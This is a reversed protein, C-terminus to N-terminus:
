IKEKIIKYIQPASIMELCQSYEENTRKRACKVNGNRWCPICPLSAKIISVLEGYGKCRARSDIPGFLALTKKKLAVAVHLPGTDVTFVGDCANIFAANERFSRLGVNIVNSFEKESSLIINYDNYLLDILQLYNETPWNRYKEASELVLYITKKKKNIKDSLFDKATQLEEKKPYYKPLMDSIFNRAGLAEAYIEVRNKEVLKGMRLRSTEYKSCPNSIDFVKSYQTYDVKSNVDLVKDVSPCTEVIEMLSAETAVHLEKNPFKSRLAEIGNLAMLIDGIGRETRKILIPKNTTKNVTYNKAPLKPKSLKEMSANYVMEASIKELCALKGNSNRNCESPSYWCAFCPLNLCIAEANQYHNIRSEPPIPGWISIIKKNLAGALHLMSSDPCIVLDCEKMIAATDAISRDKVIFVNERETWSDVSGAWDFLLTVVNDTESLMKTLEEVRHKPWTRRADNSRPQLFILKTNPDKDKLFTEKIEKQAKKSEKNRVIYKPVPNSISLGAEEGFMNIRNPPVTKKKERSLGTTTIDVSYDFTMGSDQGNPVILDIDPCHEAVEQLAGNAYEVDTMYTIHSHPLLRKIEALMPLSMIVDGIGGLRRKILIRPKSLKLLKDIRIKDQQKKKARSSVNMVKSPIGKRLHPPFRKKFTM